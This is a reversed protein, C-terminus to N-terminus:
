KGIAKLEADAAGLTVGDRLRAIGCLYHSDRQQREKESFRCPLWVQCDETRMWPAAFEFGAPMIGVVTVDGGNVRITRGILGADGAFTQQWLRHGIIAVPAAGELCDDPTFLRGRLPAIGFAPLVGDTARVGAVAQAHDLGVNVTGPNYVGFHEFSTNQEHLDLYDAPSLPWGDGSWVQTIERADPYDFPHVVLARLTSFMATSSGIGVALTLTAILAFGRAKAIQRFALRLDTLM